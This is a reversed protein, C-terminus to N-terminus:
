TKGKPITIGFPNNPDPKVPEYTCHPCLYAGCPTQGAIAADVGFAKILQALGTARELAAIVITEDYPEAYWTANDLSGNRPLYIQGVYNLTEGHGVFGRGYGHMQARGRADPGKRAAIKCAADDAKTKYDWVIGAATDYLDCSGIIPEGDIYGITVRTETVYRWPMTNFVAECQSHIATGVRAKWAHTNPPQKDGNLAHILAKACPNGYESPGITTQLSRPTDNMARRLEDLIEQVCVAPSDIEATNTPTPV